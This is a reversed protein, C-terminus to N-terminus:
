ARLTKTLCGCSSPCLHTFESSALLPAPAHARAIDRYGLARFFPAASQTLLTLSELRAATADSEAAALLAIGLGHGRWAPDVVLSRLLGDAGHREVAVTGVVNGAETAVTFDRLSDPGLDETPLGAADLLSRIRPWDGAAAPRLAAAVIM